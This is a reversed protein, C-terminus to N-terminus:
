VGTAQILRFNLMQSVGVLEHVGCDPTALIGFTLEDDTNVTAFCVGKLEGNEAAELLKKLGLVLAEQDQITKKEREESLVVLHASMSNRM